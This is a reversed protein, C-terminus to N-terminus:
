PLLIELDTSWGRRPPCFRVDGGHALAIERVISLGLGSGKGLIYEDEPNIRKELLPYMTGEPDAIFPVFLDESSEPDVGVGTDMVNIKTGESTKEGTIAIKKTKGGAVVAKIANSLVNVLMSYVEAELIKPTRLSPPVGALDVDIEYRRTVIKYCNVAKQVRELLALEQPRARRSDVSILSTMELLDRFRAKSQTIEEQMRALKKAAPASVERRVADLSAMYHDLDGLLGRVDHAFILLLSSTSAVLRLHRLEETTARHSQLIANAARVLTRGAMREEGSLRSTLQQAEQRVYEAATEVVRQPEVIVKAAEEFEDKSTEVKDREVLRVYHDRYITSWDVAFRVAARLLEIGRDGVFGERNAKLEFLGPDPSAVEVSGVYCHSSLMNLLERGREVGELKDAFGKLVDFETTTQRRGRDRDIHLWDNGPAGFPYVRFGRHRVFVGGWEPLIKQLTGVSLVRTDRLQGKGYSPIVAIEGTTGALEPYAKKLTYTRKGIKMADLSCKLSGDEDVRIGLKGWGADMLQDRPNVLIEDELVPAAITMGFGPDEDFGDRKTGQNAVLVMMQRKLAHWNRKNWEQYSGGRIILKTGTKGGASVNRDGRCTIETVDTGPKYDKWDFTVSTTEYKGSKTKGTTTLELITGLRRCSFRGIGKSGTKPRGYRRSLQDEVKNTTAIRMWYKEVDEFTMGSGNDVISIIAHGKKEPLLTVNVETADADYANKILEALALHVTEVLREGLESLLASDVVFSLEEM